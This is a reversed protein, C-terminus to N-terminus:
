AGSTSVVRYGSFDNLESAARAMLTNYQNTLNKIEQVIAQIQLDDEPLYSRLSALEVGKQRIMDPISSLSTQLLSKGYQERKLDIEEGRAQDERGAQYESLRKRIAMARADQQGKTAAIGAASIGKSLDGGAIGAGLQMLANAMAADKSEKILDSFDLADPKGPDPVAQAQRPSTGQVEKPGGRLLAGIGDEEYLIGAGKRSADQTGEQALELADKLAKPADVQGPKAEAQDFPRVTAVERAVEYDPREPVGFILDFVSGVGGRIARREQETMQPLQFDPLNPVYSERASAIGEGRSRAPLAVDTQGLDPLSALQTNTDRGSQFMEPTNSGAGEPLSPLDDMSIGLGAPAIMSYDPNQEQAMDRFSSVLDDMSPMSRYANVAGEVMDGVIEPPQFYNFRSGIQDAVIDKARESAIFAKDLDSVGEDLLPNYQSVSARQRDAVLQKVLEIAEPQNKFITLLDAMSAGEAIAREIQSRVDGAGSVTQQDLFGGEQLRIIGGGFMQQPPMAQPPMAQPPMAQPMMPQPPMAGMIGEQVIQDTVTGQPQQQDQYRKRMDTRRQIESVVLFQPVQGSPAQAEEMLSQDPLGKIIDEAELINM